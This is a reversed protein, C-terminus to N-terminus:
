KFKQKQQKARLGWRRIASDLVQGILEEYSWGNCYAARPLRSNEKPEKMFGPLANVELVNPEGDYDLRLDIRAWDRCDLVKFTKIVIDTIRKQLKDSIAAPCVLPDHPANPNDYIWKAEYSDMPNIGPPLHDFRVEVIPLVNLKEYGVVGVTFERGRLFEEVIVPQRYNRIIKGAIRRLTEYDNVLNENFVGKSSGELLPKILLPYNLGEVEDHERELVRFEPTAIDNKKLIEKTRAKNLTNILAVSGAATFPIGLEECIQPVMAERDEGTLGEAV